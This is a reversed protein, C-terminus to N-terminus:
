PRMGPVPWPRRVPGPPGSLRQKEAHLYALGPIIIVCSLIMVQMTGVIGPGVGMALICLALVTAGYAAVLAVSARFFWPRARILAEAAIFSFAALLGVAGRAAVAHSIDDPQLAVFVACLLIGMLGALMGAVVLGISRPM